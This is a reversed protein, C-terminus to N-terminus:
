KLYNRVQEVTEELEGDNQIYVYPIGSSRAVQEWEDDKSLRRAINDPTDGRLEMRQRLIAADPSQVFFSLVKDNGTYGRLLPVTEPVLIMMSLSSGDLADDISQRMTGYRNGAYDAKWLFAGNEDRAAFGDLSICEYEGPLDSERSSRTTVSVVLKYSLDSGSCKLLEKAISSKGSGSAGTFTVIKVNDNM